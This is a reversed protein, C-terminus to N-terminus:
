FQALLLLNCGLIPLFCFPLNLILRSARLVLQKELDFNLRLGIIPSNM